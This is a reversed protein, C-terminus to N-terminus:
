NSRVAYKMPSTTSELGPASTKLRVTVSRSEHAFIFPFYRSIATMASRGTRELADIDTGYIVTELLADARLMPPTETM